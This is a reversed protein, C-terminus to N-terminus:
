IEKNSSRNKNNVPGFRTLNDSLFPSYYVAGKQKINLPRGPYLLVLQFRYILPKFLRRLRIEFSHISDQSKCLGSMRSSFNRGSLIIRPM